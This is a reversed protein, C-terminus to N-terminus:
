EAREHAERAEAVHRAIGEALWAIRAHEINWQRRDLQDFAALDASPPALTHGHDAVEPVHTSRSALTPTNM